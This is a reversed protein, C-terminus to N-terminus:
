DHWELVPANEFERLLFYVGVLFATAFWIMKGRGKSVM